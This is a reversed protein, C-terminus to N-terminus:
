RTSSLNINPQITKGHEGADMGDEPRSRKTASPPTADEEGLTTPDPDRWDIEDLLDDDNGAVPAATEDDFNLELDDEPAQTGNNITSSARSLAAPAEAFPDESEEANEVEDQAVNPTTGLNFDINDDDFAVGTQDNASEDTPNALQAAHIIKTEHEDLVTTRINANLHSFPDHRIHLAARTFRHHKGNLNLEESAQDLEEAAMLTGAEDQPMQIDGYQDYQEKHSGLTTDDDVEEKFLEDLEDEAGTEGTQDQVNEHQEEDVGEYGEETAYDDQDDIDDHMSTANPMPSEFLRIVEELGRGDAASQSLFELRKTTNTKTFLYTYLARSSGPDQNRVLVEFVDLIHRLTVNNM